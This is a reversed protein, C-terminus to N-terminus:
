TGTSLGEGKREGVNAACKALRTRGPQGGGTPANGLVVLLVRDVLVPVLVLVILGVLGVLVLVRQGLLELKRRGDVRDVLVDVKGVRDVTARAERGLM